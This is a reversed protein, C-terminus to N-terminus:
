NVTQELVEGMVSPGYKKRLLSQPVKGPRFGPISVTSSLEKLKANVNEEITSAPISVTYERVLGESKTETVQM